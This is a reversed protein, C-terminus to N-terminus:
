EVPRFRFPFNEEPGCFSTSLSNSADRAFVVSIQRLLINLRWSVIPRGTVPHSHRFHHQHHTHQPPTLLVWCGDVNFVKEQRNLHNGNNFELFGWAMWTRTGNWNSQHSRAEIGESTWNAYNTTDIKKIKKIKSCFSLLSFLSGGVRSWKMREIGARYRMIRCLLHSCVIAM